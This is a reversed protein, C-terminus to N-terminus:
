FTVLAVSSCTEELEPIGQLLNKMLKIDEHISKEKLFHLYCFTLMDKSIFDEMPSVNWFTANKQAWNYAASFGGSQSYTESLLSLNSVPHLVWHISNHAVYVIDGPYQHLVTFQVGLKHLETTSPM